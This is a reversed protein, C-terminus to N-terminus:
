KDGKYFMNFLDAQKKANALYVSKSVPAEGMSRLEHNYEGWGENEIITKKRDDLMQKPDDYIDVTEVKKTDVSYITQNKQITM